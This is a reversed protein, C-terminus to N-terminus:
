IGTGKLYEVCTGTTVFIGAGLLAVCWADHAEPLSLEGAATIGWLEKSRLSWDSPWVAPIM